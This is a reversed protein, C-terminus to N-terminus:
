PRSRSAPTNKESIEMGFAESFMKAMEADDTVAQAIALNARATDTVRVSKGWKYQAMDYAFAASNTDPPPYFKLANPLADGEVYPKPDDASWCLVAGLLAVFFVSKKFLTMKFIRSNFRRM